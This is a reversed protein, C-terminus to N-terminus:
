RPLVAHRAAAKDCAEWDWGNWRMGTPSRGRPRTRKPPRKPKSETIPSSSVQGSSAATDQRKQKRRFAKLESERMKKVEPSGEPQGQPSRFWCGPVKTSYHEKSGDSLTAVTWEAKRGSGPVGAGSQEPWSCEQWMRELRDLVLNRRGNIASAGATSVGIPVEVAPEAAAIVSTVTALPLETSVVASFAHAM